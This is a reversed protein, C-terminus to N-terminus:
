FMALNSVVAQSRGANASSASAPSRDSVAQPPPPPETLPGPLTVGVGATIVTNGGDCVTYGPDGADNVTEPPTGGYRANELLLAIRGIESFTTPASTTSSALATLTAVDTLMVTCSEILWVATDDTSTDGAMKNGLPRVIVALWPVQPPPAIQVPSVPVTDTCPVPMAPAASAPRCIRKSTTYPENPMRLWFGAEGSTCVSVTVVSLAPSACTPMWASTSTGVCGACIRAVSRVDPCASIPLKVMTRLWSPLAKSVTIGSVAVM